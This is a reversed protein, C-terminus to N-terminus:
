EKNNLNEILLNCQKFFQEIDKHIENPKMALAIEYYKPNFSLTNKLCYNKIQNYLCQEEEFLLKKGDFEKFPRLNTTKYDIHLHLLTNENLFGNIIKYLQDKHFQQCKPLLRYWLDEVFFYNDINKRGWEYVSPDNPYQPKNDGDFLIIKEVQPAFQRLAKFHKKAKEYMINKDVGHLPIITFRDLINFNKDWARLIHEDNRGEVYLVLPNAAISILQHQEILELSDKIVLKDDFRKSNPSILSYLSSNDVNDIFIESHTAIIFQTNIKNEKLYEILNRQLNHHLHADPEDYLIIDPKYAYFFGLAILIQHFGSGAMILDLKPVALKKTQHHIKQYTINIYRDIAPDYKPKNIHIAFWKEIINTFKKWEEDGRKSLNLLVNRIIRGPLGRGTESRIYGEDGKTEHSEIGLSPPVYVIQPFLNEIKQKHFNHWDNDSQPKITISRASLYTIEISLSHVMDNKVWQAHLIIPKRASKENQTSKNHWLSSFDRDYPFAFFETDGLSIANKRKLNPNQSILFDICFKWLIIAQLITTKGSNNVGVLLDLETFQFEENEISKFNKITISKLM